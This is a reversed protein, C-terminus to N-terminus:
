KKNEVLREYFEYPNLYPDVSFRWSRNLAHIVLEYCYHRDDNRRGFWKGTFVKLIHWWFNITEYRKGVQEELYRKVEREEAYTLRADVTKIIANVNKGKARWESVPLKVVRPFDAEYIVQEKEDYFLAHNYIVPPIKKGRLLCHLKMFLHIGRATFNRTHVIQIVM